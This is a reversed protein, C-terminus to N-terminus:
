AGADTTAEGAPAAEGPAPRRDARPHRRLGLALLAVPLTVIGGLVYAPGIGLSRGFAGLMPQSAVGGASGMLGNFSVVTARTESPICGHLAAQRIPESVSFATMGVFFAGVAPWFSGALGTAVMGLSFVIAAVAITTSRRVRTGIAAAVQGGIIMVLGLGAAIVGAVWVLDQGLLGLFYPQWAYWGWVLFGMHLLTMLMVLRVPPNRLGHEISAGTIRRVEKPVDRWRFPRRQFGVDHMTWYAFGFLLALLVARVVYPYSLDLQGLLGGGVTGVLLSVGFLQGGRAFVTETEDDGVSHLADVVWAEVAGSYFTFGIGLVVSAVAFPVLGAGAEALMVYAVTGLALVVTSMLFSFRRGVTDAAVGTPIEFLVQGATFFANAVFTEFLDLGANLLFLTNVGWILSASLNYLLVILYYRRRVQKPTRM